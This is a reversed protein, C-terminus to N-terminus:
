TRRKASRGWGRYGDRTWATERWGLWFWGLPVDARRLSRLALAIARRIRFALAIRGVGCAVLAEEPAFGTDVGVLFVDEFHGVVTTAVNFVLHFLGSLPLALLMPSSWGVGGQIMALLTSSGRLLLQLLHGLLLLPLWLAPRALLPWLLFGAVVTANTVFTLALDALVPWAVTWTFLLSLGRRQVLWLRSTNWRRRQRWLARVTQPTSTAVIARADYAIPRSVVQRLTELLAALPSRPLELDIRDNTWRASMALWAIWTDDGPGTTSALNPEVPAAAFSPPARGLWWLLWDRLRLTAIFPAYRPAQLHIESWTCYLAGSVGTVPLVRATHRGLGIFCAYERAVQLALQGRMTLAHRFGQWFHARRVCVNAAVIMPREHFFGRPTVLTWALRELASPSLSSDADLNFFVPPFAEIEGAAVKRRVFDLAHEMALAKGSRRPVPLVWLRAGTPRSFAEAWRQLRTVLAPAADAHDIVVCVHLSGPYGNDLASRVAACLADLEREGALLTPILLLADPLAHRERLFRDPLLGAARLLMRAVIVLDSSRYVVFVFLLPRWAVHLVDLVHAMVAFWLIPEM